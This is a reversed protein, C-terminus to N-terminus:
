LGSDAPDRRDQDARSATGTDPSGQPDVANNWATCVATHVGSGNVTLGAGPYTTAEAGDIGCNMGGIGSPGASGKADVTVPHNVWVSPNEDNPTSLTVNVPDNDVELTESPQSLVSAANSAELTLNLQGAGAVYDRTDVTAGQSTTWTPNPCQQWESTNPTASPGPVLVDNVTAYINCVGSPDSAALTIPWPDGTPNWVYRGTQYWLNDSGVASLSPGQNEVAVVQVTNVSIAGSNSCSSWGCVM